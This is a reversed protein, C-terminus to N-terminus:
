QQCYNLKHTFMVKKFERGREIYNWSECELKDYFFLVLTDFRFCINQITGFQEFWRQNSFYNEFHTAHKKLWVTSLSM